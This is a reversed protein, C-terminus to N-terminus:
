PGSSKVSTPRHPSRGVCELRHTLEDLIRHLAATASLAEDDDTVPLTVLLETIADHGSQVMLLAITANRETVHGAAGRARWTVVVRVNGTSVWITPWAHVSLVEGPGEGGLAARMASMLLGDIGPDSFRAVVEAIPLDVYASVSATRETMAKTDSVAQAHALSPIHSM